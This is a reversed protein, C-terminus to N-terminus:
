NCLGLGSLPLPSLHLVSRKSLTQTGACPLFGLYLRAACQPSSFSNLTQTCLLAACYSCWPDQQAKRFNIQASSSSGLTHSFSPSHEPGPINVQRAVLSMSRSFCEHIIVLKIRPQLSSQAQLYQVNPSLCM